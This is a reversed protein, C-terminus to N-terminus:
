RWIGNKGYGRVLIWIKSSAKANSLPYFKSFTGKKNMRLFDWDVYQYVLVNNFNRMMEGKSNSDERFQYCKHDETNYLVMKYENSQWLDYVSLVDRDAIEKPLHSKREIEKLMSKWPEEEKWKEEPIFFEEVDFDKSMVIDHLSFTVYGYGIYRNVLRHFVDGETGTYVCISVKDSDILEMPGILCLRPDRLWRYSRDKYIEEVAYVPREKKFRGYTKSNESRSSEDFLWVVRRGDTVHCLTRRWFEDSSIPSHQFELVMNQSELYVDAIHVERTDKDIFKVEQTEKPFYDQMRIHWESKNDKDMGYPCDTDPLHSFYPPIIKGKKHILKEECVPCYCDKYRVPDSAYIRKGSKDLAVRM